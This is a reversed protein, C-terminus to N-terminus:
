GSGRVAPELKAEYITDRDLDDATQEPMYRINSSVTHHHSVRGNTIVEIPQGLDFKRCTM